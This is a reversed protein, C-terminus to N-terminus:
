TRGYVRGHNRIIAEAKRKCIRLSIREGQQELSTALKVVEERSSLLNKIKKLKNKKLSIM